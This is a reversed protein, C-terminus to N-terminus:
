RFGSRLGWSEVEEPASDLARFEEADYFMLTKYNVKLLWLVLVVVLLWLLKRM